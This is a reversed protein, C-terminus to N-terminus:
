KQSSLHKIIPTDYFVFWSMLFNTLTVIQVDYLILDRITEAQEAM